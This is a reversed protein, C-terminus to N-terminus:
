AVRRYHVPMMRGRFAATLGFHAEGIIVFDCSSLITHELAIQMGGLQVATLPSREYHVRQGPFYLRPVPRPLAADIRMLAEENDSTFYVGYRVLGLNKAHKAISTAFLESNAVDDLPVDVWGKSSGGSGGIRFQAGIVVDVSHMFTEFQSWISQRKIKELSFLKEFVSAFLHMDTSCDVGHKGLLNAFKSLQDFNIANAHVVVCQADGFLSSDLSDVHGSFRARVETDFHGDILDIRPAHYLEERMQAGVRWDFGAPPM